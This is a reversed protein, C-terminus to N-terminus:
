EDDEGKREYVSVLIKGYRYSKKMVFDDVTDPLKVEMPHECLIKGYKSVNKQVLKLAKLLFDSAYPPDLFVFDFEDTLGMLVAAYDGRIVKASGSLGTNELNKTINKVSTPNSDVFLAYEAGRSLAEIGLQGSGGFLDLVRRGEIDFQIASFIGEKVREPTPRVDLGEATILSKGKALGTIVRM